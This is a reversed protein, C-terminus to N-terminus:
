VDLSCMWVKGSGVGAALLKGLVASSSPRYDSPLWIINKSAITIWRGDNSLRLVHKWSGEAAPACVVTHASLLVEFYLPGIDSTVFQGSIDFSMLRPITGVKLTQLCRGSGADWIKATRDRPGTVVWRLDASV